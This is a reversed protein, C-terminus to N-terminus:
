ILLRIMNFLHKLLLIKTKDNFEVKWKARPLDKNIEIQENSFSDLEKTQPVCVLM